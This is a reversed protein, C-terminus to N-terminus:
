NEIGIGTATITVLITVGIVKDNHIVPTFVSTTSISESAYSIKEKHEVKKGAAAEGFCRIFQEDIRNKTDRAFDIISAGARLEKNHFRVSNEAAKKNFALIRYKLDVLFWVSESDEFEDKLQRILDPTM